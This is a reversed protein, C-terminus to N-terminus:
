VQNPSKNVSEISELTVSSVDAHMDAQDGNIRTSQLPGYTVDNGTQQADGTQSVQVDVIQHWKRQRKGPKVSAASPSKRPRKRTKNRVASPSPHLLRVDAQDDHDMNSPVELNSTASQVTDTTIILVFHNPTWTSSQSPSRCSTWMIDVPPYMDDRRYLPLFTFNLLESFVCTPGNVRPCLSRIPRQLVSAATRLSWVSCSASWTATDAIGSL